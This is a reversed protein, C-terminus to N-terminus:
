LSSDGDPIMQISRGQVFAFAIVFGARLARSRGNKVHFMERAHRIIAM